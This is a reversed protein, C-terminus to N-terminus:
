IIKTEKLERLIKEGLKTNNSMEQNAVNWTIPEGDVVAIIEKRMNIPLNAYIKFFREKSM